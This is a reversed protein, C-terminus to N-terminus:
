RKRGYRSHVCIFKEFKDLLNVKARDKPSQLCVLIGSKLPIKTPKFMKQWFIVPAKKIGSPDFLAPIPQRFFYFLFIAPIVRHYRHDV